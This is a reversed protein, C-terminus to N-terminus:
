RRRFHRQVFTKPGAASRRLTPQQPRRVDPLLTDNQGVTSKGRTRAMLVWPREGPRRVRCAPLRYWHLQVPQLRKKGDHVATPEGRRRRVDVPGLRPHTRVDSRELPLQADPQDVTRVPGGRRCRGPSQEGAMGSLDQDLDARRTGRDVSQAGENAVGQRDQRNGADPRREKGTDQRFGQPPLRIRSERQRLSSKPLALRRVGRLLEGQRHQRRQGVRMRGAAAFSHQPRLRDPHEDRRVV